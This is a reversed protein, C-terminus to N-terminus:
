ACISNLLFLEGLQAPNRHIAENKKLKLSTTRNHLHKASKHRRGWVKSTRGLPPALRSACDGKNEKQSSGLLDGGLMHLLRQDAAYNLVSASM